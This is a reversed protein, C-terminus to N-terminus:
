GLVDVPPARPTELGEAVDVREVLPKEHALVDVHGLKVVIENAIKIM